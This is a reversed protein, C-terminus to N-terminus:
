ERPRSRVPRPLRELWIGVKKARGVGKRVAENTRSVTDRVARSRRSRGERDSNATNKAPKRRCADALNRVRMPWWPLGLGQRGQGASSGRAANLALLNTQFAIEDITKIIKATEESATSIEKMSGM